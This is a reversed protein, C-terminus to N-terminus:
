LLSVAWLNLLYFSLGNFSLKKRFSTMKFSVNGSVHADFHFRNMNKWNDLDYATFHKCCASAKLHSSMKSVDDFNDGQVGRVFSVSYEGAVLPDEGPTEQGRGWRPDRFININPAWFTM